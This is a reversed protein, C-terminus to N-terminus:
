ELKDKIMAVYSKIKESGFAGMSLAPNPNAELLVWRGSNSDQLIDVGTFDRDVSTAAATAIRLTDQGIDEVSKLSAEAGKSTNNLHTDKGGYRKFILPDQKGFVLVRYDGDNPIFEQAVYQQNIKLIEGLQQENKVLYNESGKMGNNAKVILPFQFTKLVLEKLVANDWCSVTVPVPLDQAAFIMMQSLKGLAVGRDSEEIFRIGHKQGYAYIARAYDLVNLGKDINRLHIADYGSIDQQNFNDWIRQEDDSIYFELRDLSTVSLKIDDATTSVAGAFELLGTAIDNDSELWGADRPSTILLIKM